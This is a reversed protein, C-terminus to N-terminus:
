ASGAQISRHVGTMQELLLVAGSYPHTHVLCHRGYYDLFSTLLRPLGGPIEDEKNGSIRLSRRLLEDAGDGVYSMIQELPLANKGLSSLTANVAEALDRRTDALTGDLDFVLLKLRPAM